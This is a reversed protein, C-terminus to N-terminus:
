GGIGFIQRRLDEGAVVRVIRRRKAAVPAIPTMAVEDEGDDSARWGLAAKAQAAAREEIVAQDIFRVGTATGDQRRVECLSDIDKAEIVLRFVSLPALTVALDLLAGGDSLNRVTCPEPRKGAIHAFAHITVERRGFGRRDGVQLGRRM